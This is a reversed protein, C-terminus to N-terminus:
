GEAGPLTMRQTGSVAFPVVTRVKSASRAKQSCSRLLLSQTVEFQTTCMLSLPLYLDPLMIIGHKGKTDYRSNSKWVKKTTTKNTQPKKQKQKTKLNRSSVLFSMGRNGGMKNQLRPLALTNFYTCYATAPNPSNRSWEEKPCHHVSLLGRWERMNRRSPLLFKQGM